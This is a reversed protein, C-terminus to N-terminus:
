TTVIQTAQTTTRPFRSNSRCTEIFADIDSDPIRWDGGPLQYAGPLHGEHLYRHLTKNSVGLRKAAETTGYPTSTSERTDMHLLIHVYICM